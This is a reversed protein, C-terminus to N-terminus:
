KSWWTSKSEFSKSQMRKLIMETVSRTAWRFLSVCSLSCVSRTENWWGVLVTQRGWYPVGTYSTSDVPNDGEQLSRLSMHEGRWLWRLSISCHVVWTRLDWDSQLMSFRLPQPWAYFYHFDIPKSVNSPYVPIRSYDNNHLLPSWLQRFSVQKLYYYYYYYHLSLQLLHLLFLTTTGARRRHFRYLRKSTWAGTSDRNCIWNHTRDVTREHKELYRSHPNKGRSGGKGIWVCVYRLSVHNELAPLVSEQKSIISFRFHERTLYNGADFGCGCSRTRGWFDWNIFTHPESRSVMMAVSDFPRNRLRLLLSFRLSGEDERALTAPM